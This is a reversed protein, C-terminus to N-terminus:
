KYSQDIEHSERTDWGFSLHGHYAQQGDIKEVVSDHVDHAWRCECSYLQFM